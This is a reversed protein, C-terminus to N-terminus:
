EKEIHTHPQSRGNEQGSLVIEAVAYPAQFVRGLEAVATELAKEVTLTGQIKQTIANVLAEREARRQTETYLRANELAVAVHNAIGTLLALDSEDYAAHDYSQVSMAGIAKQGLFLPVFILSASVRGAQGLRQEPADALDTLRAAVEEPTRNILVPQGTQVVQLWPNDAAPRGTPPQFRQGGDYVLPYTVMGTREDYTAVIFADATLARQVQKFITELLDAPELLQSVSQAVENIVALERAQVDLRQRGLETEEFLRARELAEAVQASFAALLFEKEEDIPGGDSSRAGIIGITEGHLQLPNAMMKREPHISPEGLENLNITASSAVESLEQRIPQVTDGTFSFGQLPRETATLFAQWGQRTMARQLSNVQELREELERNLQDRAEEVQKRNSIDQFIIIAASVQGDPAFIPAGTVELLARSGDPRRVEMDDVTSKEGSMARTLPLAEMPYVDGSGHVYIQYAQALGEREGESLSGLGMMEIALDNALLPRGSSADAVFIGAPLNQFIAELTRRENELETALAQQAEEALKRDTIDVVSNGLFLPRGNEDRVLFISHITPVIEGDLHLMAVEGAWAGYELVVPIAERLVFDAEEPRYFETVPRGRVEDLTQRGLLTILAPNMYLIEGDLTALGVGQGAAQTLQRFKNAEGLAEQTQQYQRANELAVGLQAALTTQVMVDNEDFYDASDAQVDLVGLLRDGVIIPVAMEARTEPLLPNALFGPDQRVDNVIVGRRSRAARAVLSQEQQLSITHGAAAMDRGVEGAGATLVLEDRAGTLLYVHTHYLGFRQKSLDVFAQLTEQEDLAAGVQTAILAVTQLDAAQKSLRTEARKRDTIDLMAGILGGVSGDPNRFASKNFLVDHQSGDAYIVPAEYIQPKDPNELLAMDMAHYKEALERDTQLDFVTKGLLAEAPQGLSDLFPQNFGLYAGSADKYFIPNPISGLLTDRFQGAQQVEQLARQVAQNQYENQIAIALQGALVSFAPLTEETLNDTRNSQLDLVGFVQEGVLLPMVLEARTEPLLPHPRFQQSQMTDSVIIPRKQVVATGNMSSEDLPLQHGDVMLQEGVHGTSARLVLQKEGEDVLYIQVQYLNFSEYILQVAQPLLLNLGRVQSVERGIQAALNLDQTRAAVREELEASLAALEQNSRRAQALSHRLTNVLLYILLGALAFVFTLGRIYFLPTSSYTIALLGSTEGYALLWGAGVSLATFLAAARWSILLSAALIVVITAVYSSDRVGNYIFAMYLIGLWGLGLYLYSTLRLHRLRSIYLLGAMVLALVFPVFVAPSFQGEGTLFLIAALALLVFTTTLLIANLQAATRTQDEDAFVPPRLFEKLSAM